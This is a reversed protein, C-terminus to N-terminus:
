CALRQLAVFKVKRHSCMQVKSLQNNEWALTYKIILSVDQCFDSRSHVRTPSFLARIM